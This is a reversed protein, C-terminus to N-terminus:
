MTVGGIKVQSADLPAYASDAANRVQLDGTSNKVKPGTGGSGVQFTASTTGTSNQTLDTQALAVGAKTFGTTVDVTDFQAVDGTKTPTSQGSVIVSGTVNAM